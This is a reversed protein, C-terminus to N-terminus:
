LRSLESAEATSLAGNVWRVLLLSPLGDVKVAEIVGSLGNFPTVRTTVKDGVQFSSVRLIQTSDSTPTITSM